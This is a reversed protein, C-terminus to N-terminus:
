HIREIRFSHLVDGHENMISLLYLGDALPSLDVVTSVERVLDHEQVPVSTLRGQLDFVGLKLFIPRASRLNVFLKDPTPNPFIEYDLMVGSLPPRINVARDGLEDPQQFGQTFILTGGQTTATRVVSEGLTYSLSVNGVERYSGFTGVVERELSYSQAPLALSGATLISLFILRM